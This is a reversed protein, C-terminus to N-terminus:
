RNRIWALQIVEIALSFLVIIIRLVISRRLFHTVRFGVVLIPSQITFFSSLCTSSIISSPLANVSLTTLSATHLDCREVSCKVGISVIVNMENERIIEPHNSPLNRDKKIKINIDLKSTPRESFKILPVIASFPMPLFHYLACIM